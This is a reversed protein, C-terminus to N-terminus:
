LDPDWDNLSGVLRGVSTEAVVTSGPRVKGKIPVSWRQTVSTIGEIIDGNDLTATFKRQDSNSPDIGFDVVAFIQDQLIAYGLTGKKFGIALLTVDKGQLNLYTFAPAFRARVGTQEHWKGPGNPQFTKGGIDVKGSVVGTMEWRGNKSRFGASTSKFGLNLKVPTHGTGATPARTEDATINGVVTGFVNPHHRNTSTFSLSQTGSMASFSVAEDSVSTPQQDTLRFSEDVVSWATKGDTIHLWVHAKDKSPFRALRLSLEQTGDDSIMGIMVSEAYNESTGM